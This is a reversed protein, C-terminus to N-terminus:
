TISITKKVEGYVLLLTFVIRYTSLGWFKGLPKCLSNPIFPCVINKNGVPFAAILSISVMFGSRMIQLMVDGSILPITSSNWRESEAVLMGHM